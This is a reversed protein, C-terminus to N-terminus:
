SQAKIIRMEEGTRTFFQFVYVSLLGGPGILIMPWDFATMGM